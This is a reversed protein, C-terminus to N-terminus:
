PAVKVGIQDALQFTYHNIQVFPAKVETHIQWSTTSADVLPQQHSTNKVAITTVTVLGMVITLALSVVTKKM